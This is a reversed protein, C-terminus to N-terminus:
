EEDDVPDGVPEEATEPLFEVFAKGDRALEVAAREAPMEGIYYGGNGLHLKVGFASPEMGNSTDVRHPWYLKVTKEEQIIAVM